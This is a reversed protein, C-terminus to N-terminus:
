ARFLAQGLPTYVPGEPDLQSQYLIAHTVEFSLPRATLLEPLEQPPKIRALTLHPIYARKEPAFGMEALSESLGQYLDRLVPEELLKWILVDAQSQHPFAGLASLTLEFIPTRAALAELRVLLEPIKAAPLDGLFRLTLHLNEPKCWRLPGAVTKHEALHALNSRLSAQLRACVKLVREPLPLAIFLRVSKTFGDFELTGM